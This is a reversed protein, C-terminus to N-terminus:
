FGKEFFSCCQVASSCGAAVPLVASCWMGLCLHSKDESSDLRTFKRIVAALLAKIKCIDRESHSLLMIFTWAWDWSAQMRHSKPIALGLLWPSALKALKKKDLYIWFIWSLIKTHLHCKAMVIAYLKFDLIQPLNEQWVYRTKGIRWHVEMVSVFIQSMWM